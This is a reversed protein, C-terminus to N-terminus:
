HGSLNGDNVSSQSHHCCCLMRQVHRFHVFSVRTRPSHPIPATYMSPSSVHSCYMRNYVVCQVYLCLSLHQANVHCTSMCTCACRTTSLTACQVANHEHIYELLHGGMSENLRWQLVMQYFDLALMIGDSLITCIMLPSFINCVHKYSDM